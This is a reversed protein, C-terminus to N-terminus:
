EHLFRYFLIAPFFPSSKKCPQRLLLLVRFIGPYLRYVSLLIGSGPLSVVATEDAAGFATFHYVPAPHGLPFIDTVFAFAVETHLHVVADTHHCVWVGKFRPERIQGHAIWQSIFAILVLDHRRPLFGAQVFGDGHPLTFYEALIDHQPDAIGPKQHGAHAM